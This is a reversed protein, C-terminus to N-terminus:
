RSADPGLRVIVDGQDDIPTLATGPQPLLEAGGLELDAAVVAAEEEFGPRYYVVSAAVRDRVDVGTVEVYGATRLRDANASVLGSASSANALVVRVDARDRLAPVTTTTAPAITNSTSATPRTTTTEDPVTDAVATTTTVSAPSVVFNDSQAPLGAVAVGALGGVVGVAAVFPWTRTM